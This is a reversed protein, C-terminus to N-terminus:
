TERHQSGRFKTSLQWEEKHSIGYRKVLGL